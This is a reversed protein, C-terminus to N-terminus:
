QKKGKRGLNLVTKPEILNWLYRADDEKAKSQDLMSQLEQELEEITQELFENQKLLKQIDVETEKICHELHQCVSVPVCYERQHRKIDDIRDLEALIQAHLEEVQEELDKPVEEIHVSPKAQPEVTIKSELEESANLEEEHLVQTLRANEDLLLRAEDELANVRKEEEKLKDSISPKESLSDIHHYLVQHQSPKQTDLLHTMYNDYEDKIRRLIPGFTQSDAIIGDFIANYIQLRHFNPGRQSGTELAALQKSLKQELNRVNKEGTLIGRDHAHELNMVEDGFKKFSVFQETKTPYGLYTKIFTKHTHMEKPKSKERSSVGKTRALPIMIEPLQLEEVHVKDKTLKGATRTEERTHPEREGRDPKFEGTHAVNRVPGLSFEVLRDEMSKHRLDTPNLEGKRVPFDVLHSPPVLRIPPKDSAEWRKHRDDSPRLLKSLNLHGSAYTKIDERHVEYVNELLNKLTSSSRDPHKDDAM